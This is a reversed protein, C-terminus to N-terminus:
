VTETSKRKKSFPIERTLFKKIKKGKKIMQRMGVQAKGLTQGLSDVNDRQECNRLIQRKYTKGMNRILGM